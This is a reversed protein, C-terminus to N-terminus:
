PPLFLASCLLCSFLAFWFIFSLLLPTGTTSPTQEWKLQKGATPSTKLGTCEASHTCPLFPKAISQHPLFVWHNELRQGYRNWIAYIFKMKFRIMISKWVGNGEQAKQSINNNFLETSVPHLLLSVHVKMRWREINWSIYDMNSIQAKAM